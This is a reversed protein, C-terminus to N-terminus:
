VKQEEILARIPSLRFYRRKLAARHIEEYNKPLDSKLGELVAKADSM